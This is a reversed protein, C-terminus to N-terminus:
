IEEARLAGYDTEPERIGELPEFRVFERFFALPVTGTPGNRQKAIIVETTRDEEGLSGEEKGSARATYYGPRYLFAVLDADQEIAGSERLDALQPRSKERDETRRSLQSLAVVPVHIEKALAKLGRSIEAIEQVRNEVRGRGQILQLYDVIILGLNQEVKLRRAKARIELVTLTPTDDIFIPAESLLGAATTLRPWDKESLYGTRLSNGNVRAESCLMRQALQEKSMELSFIAVPIREEIAAHASIGLAFSTKGMSPRGAIVILDAPQLGSTRLDFEAFGTPVGTVHTKREYLKEIQEFTGKLIAKLPFFSRGVLEQSIQFIKQEAADVIADADDEAAYGIRVIETAVSIVERLLAADRILRAHYGVNAATPVSDVLAALAAAGGVEEVGTSRSLEHAVTVLDVPENQEFLALCAAFITRHADKYFYHPRLIEMCKLLAQGDQLIAGLVAREADMEHPPLREVAGGDPRLGGRGGPASPRDRKRKEGLREQDEGRM